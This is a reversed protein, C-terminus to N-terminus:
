CFQYCDIYFKRHYVDLFRVKLLYKCPKKPVLVKIDLIIKFIYQLDNKTYKAISLSPILLIGLFLISPLTNIPLISITLTNFFKDLNSLGSFGSNSPAFFAPLLNIKNFHSKTAM